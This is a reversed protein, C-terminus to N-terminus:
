RRDRRQRRRTEILEKAIRDRRAHKQGDLVAVTDSLFTAALRLDEPDTGDLIGADAAEAANAIGHLVNALRALENRTYTNM